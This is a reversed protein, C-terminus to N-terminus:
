VLSAEKTKKKNSHCTLEQGMISKSKLVDIQTMTVM